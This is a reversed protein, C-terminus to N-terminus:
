LSLSPHLSLLLSPPISLLHSPHLSHCLPLSLHRSNTFFPVPLSHRVAISLSFSHPTFPSCTLPISLTASPSLTISLTPSLHFLSLHLSLTRSSSSTFRPTQM